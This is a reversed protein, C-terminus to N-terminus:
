FWAGPRPLNRFASSARHAIGRLVARGGLHPGALMATLAAGIAAIAALRETGDLLTQAVLLGLAGLIAACVALVFATLLRRRLATKTRREMVLVRFMPDRAPAAEAKLAQDLRTELDTM